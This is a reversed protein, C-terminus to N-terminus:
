SEERGASDAGSHADSRDAGRGTSHERMYREFYNCWNFYDEENKRRRQWAYVAEKETKKYGTEAHCTLCSVHWRPELTDLYIGTVFQDVGGCFPCPGLCAEYVKFDKFDEM